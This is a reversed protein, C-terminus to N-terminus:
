QIVLKETKLLHGGKDQITVVYIGQPLGALSFSETERMWSMGETRVTQGIANIFTVLTFSGRVADPRSISVEGAAPNPYISIHETLAGADKVGEAMYPEYYFYATGVPSSNYYGAGSAPDTIQYSYNNSVTPNNYSDYAYSYKTRNALYSPPTAFTGYFSSFITDPLGASNVHKSSVLWQVDGGSYQYQSLYTWYNVGATYGFSDKMTPAWSGSSLTSGSDTNLTNDSNYTIIYRDTETWTSSSNYWVASYTLNGATNYTYLERTNPSWTGPAMWDEVSDAILLGGSNYTYGVRSITDWGPNMWSLYVSSTINNSADYTNIFHDWEGSTDTPNYMDSCFVANNNADYGDNVVEALGFYNSGSTDTLFANWYYSTDAYVDKENVMNTSAHAAAGNIYAMPFGGSMFYQGSPTLFYCVDKNYKSGRSGSYRFCSSDIRGIPTFPTDTYDYNYTAMGILRESPTSTTKAALEQRARLQAQQKLLIANIKQRSYEAPKRSAHRRADRASTYTFSTCLLVVLNVYTIYKM